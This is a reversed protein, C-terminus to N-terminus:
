NVTPTSKMATPKPPAIKRNANGRYVALVDVHMAMERAGGAPVKGLSYPGFGVSITRTIKWHVKHFCDKMHKSSSNTMVVKLWSITQGTREVKVQIPLQKKGDIYIGTKLGEIKEDTVRGHIRVRFYRPLESAVLKRALSSNTTVLCLGESNFDMRSVPRLTQDPPLPILTKIRDLMLPRHKIPDSEDVLEGSYKNVVWLRLPAMLHNSSTQTGIRIGDVMIIDKKGVRTAPSKIIGVNVTVRGDRIWQEAQHRSCLGSAAVVQSLRLQNAQSSSAANPLTVNPATGAAQALVATVADASSRRRFVYWFRTVAQLSISRSLSMIGEVKIGSSSWRVRGSKSRV